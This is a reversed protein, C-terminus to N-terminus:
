IQTIKFINRNKKLRISQYRMFLYGSYFVSLGIILVEVTNKQIITDTIITYHYIVALFIFTYYLSFNKGIVQRIFLFSLLAVLSSILIDTM